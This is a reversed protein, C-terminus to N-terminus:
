CANSEGGEVLGELRNWARLEGDDNMRIWERLRGMHPRVLEPSGQALLCLAELLRVRLGDDWGLEVLAEVHPEVLGPSFRGIWGLGLLGDRGDAGSEDNLAWLLRRVVAKGLDPHHAGAEGLARAAARRIGPDPDWLRGVLHRVARRDEAVLRGLEDTRGRALLEMVTEKLGM